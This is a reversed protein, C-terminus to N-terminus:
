YSKRITLTGGKSYNELNVWEFSRNLGDWFLARRKKVIQPTEKTVPKLLTRCCISSPNVNYRLFRQSFAISNGNTVALIQEFYNGALDKVLNLPLVM